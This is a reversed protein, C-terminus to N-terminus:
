HRFIGSFGDQMKHSFGARRAVELVPEAPEASYDLQVEKQGASRHLAFLLQLLALDAEEVQALDVALRMPCRELGRLLAERLLASHEITASGSLRLTGSQGDGSLTYGQGSEEFAEAAQPEPAPAQNDPAPPEDASAPAPEAQQQQAAQEAAGKSFSPHPKPPVATETMSPKRAMAENLQRELDDIDQDSVPKRTQQAPEVQLEPTKSADEVHHIYKEEVQFIAKCLDPELITAYLVYFPIRNSLEGDLDGVSSIDTKCDLILGSKELSKMLDLPTKDKQHVDHILDYEVLYVYNGGKRAQKLDHESISFIPKGDPLNLNAKSTVAAKEEEPLSSKVLDTLTEVHESIDMEESEHVNDVLEQLRDFARLIVNVVDSTPVMENSRIMDLVNEIKHSLDRINDLALFGASGKISHATRFVKNVLEPDFDPGAEEIDLLDTEIDALHEKTDELFMALINDDM